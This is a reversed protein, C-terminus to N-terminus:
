VFTFLDDQNVKVTQFLEESRSSSKEELRRLELMRQELLQFDSVDIILWVVIFFFFNCFYIAECHLRMELSQSM